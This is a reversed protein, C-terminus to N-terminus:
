SLGGADTKDARGPAESFWPADRFHEIRRYGSETTKLINLEEFRELLWEAIDWYLVFLRHRQERAALGYAMEIWTLFSFLILGSVLLVTASWVSPNPHLIAVYVWTAIWIALVVHDLLPRPLM